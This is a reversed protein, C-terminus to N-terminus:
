LPVIFLTYDIYALSQFTHLSLTHQAKCFDAVIRVNGTFDPPMTEVREILREASVERSYHIRAMEMLPPIWKKAGDLLCTAKWDTIIYINVM